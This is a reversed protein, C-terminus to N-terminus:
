DILVLYIQIQLFTLDKFWEKKMPVMSRDMDATLAGKDKKMARAALIAAGVPVGIKAVKKLGKKLKKLM